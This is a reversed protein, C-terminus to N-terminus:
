GFSGHIWPTTCFHTIPEGVTKWVAGGWGHDFARAVQGYTNTPPGSGLWFPNPSIIGALNATLDAM